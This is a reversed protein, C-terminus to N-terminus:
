HVGGQQRREQAALKRLQASWSEALEHVKINARSRSANIRDRALVRAKGPAAKAIEAEAATRQDPSGVIVSDMLDALATKDVNRATIEYNAGFTKEFWADPTEKPFAPVKRPAGEAAAEVATFFGDGLLCVLVAVLKYDDTKVTVLELPCAVIWITMFAGYESFEHLRSFLGDILDFGEASSARGM